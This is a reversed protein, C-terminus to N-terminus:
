LRPGRVGSRLVRVSEAVCWPELVNGRDRRWPRCRQPLRAAAAGPGSGPVRVGPREM